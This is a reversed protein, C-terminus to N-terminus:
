LVRELFVNRHLVREVSNDTGHNANEIVGIVEM